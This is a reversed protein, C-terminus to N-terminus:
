TATADEASLDFVNFPYSQENTCFRLKKNSTLKTNLLSVGLKVYSYTCLMLVCVGTKFYWRVRPITLRAARKSKYGASFQKPSFSFFLQRLFSDM